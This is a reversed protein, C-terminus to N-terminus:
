AHYHMGTIGATIRPLGLCSSLFNLALRLWMALGQRLSLFNLFFFFTGLCLHTWLKFKQWRSGSWAKMRIRLRSGNHRSKCNTWYIWWIKSWVKIQWVAGTTELGSTTGFYSSVTRQATVSIYPQTPTPFRHGGLCLCCAQPFSWPRCISVLRYIKNRLNVIGGILNWVQWWSNFTDKPFVPRHIFTYKNGIIIILYVSVDKV